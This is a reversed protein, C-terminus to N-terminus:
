ASMAPREGYDAVVCLRDVGKAGRRYAVDEVKRVLEARRGIDDREIPVVARRLCDQARGIAHDTQCGLTEGLVEPCIASETGPRLEDAHAVIGILGPEDNLAHKLVALVSSEQFLLRDQEPCRAM